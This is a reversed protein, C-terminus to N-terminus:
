NLFRTMERRPVVDVMLLDYQIYNWFIILIWERVVMELHKWGLGLWRTSCRSIQSLQSGEEM